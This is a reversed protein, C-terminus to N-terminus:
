FPIEGFEENSLDGYSEQPAQRVPQQQRNTGQNAAAAVERRVYGDEALLWRPVMNTFGDKQKLNIHIWGTRGIWAEMSERPDIGFTDCFATFNGNFTKGETLFISITPYAKHRVLCKVQTYQKQGEKPDNIQGQTYEVIKVQYDGEQDVVGAQIGERNYDGFYGM